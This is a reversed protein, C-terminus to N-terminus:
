IDEKIIDDLKSMLDSLDAKHYIADLKVFGLYIDGKYPYVEFPVINNIKTEFYDTDYDHLCWEYDIIISYGKYTLHANCWGYDNNSDRYKGNFGVYTNGDM